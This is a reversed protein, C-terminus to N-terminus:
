SFPRKTLIAPLFTLISNIPMRPLSNKGSFYTSPIPSILNSLSPQPKIPWAGVAYTLLFTVSILLSLLSNKRGQLLVTSHPNFYKFEHIYVFFQYCSRNENISFLVHYPIEKHLVDKQNPIPQQSCHSLQNIELMWFSKSLYALSNLLQLWNSQERM